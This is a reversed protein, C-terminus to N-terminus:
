DALLDATLKSLVAKRGEAYEAQKEENQTDLWDAVSITEPIANTTRFTKDYAKYDATLRDSYTNELMKQNISETAAKKQKALQGKELLFKDMADGM